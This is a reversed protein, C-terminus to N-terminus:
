NAKQNMQGNRLNVGTYLFAKLSCAFDTWGQTQGLAKKVSDPSYDFHFESIELKTKHADIKNFVLQVTTPDQGVANWEFSIEKNRVSTLVHVECSVGADSFHWILQAGAEMKGSCDSAFYCSMKSPDYIANFVEDISAEIISNVKVKLKEMGVM